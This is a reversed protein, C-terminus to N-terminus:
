KRDVEEGAENYLIATDVEDNNWINERHGCNIGGRGTDEARAWVRLTEGPAIASYLACDQNGRESLLHWGFLDQTAGGVNRLDVYEEVKNVVAIVIVPGAPTPTDTPTPVPTDTPTPTSTPVPTDTPAPTDTETPAPTFTPM